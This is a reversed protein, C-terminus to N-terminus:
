RKLNAGTRADDVRAAKIRRIALFIVGAAVLLLLLPWHRQILGTVLTLAGDAETVRGSAGSLEQLATGAATVLGGGMLAKEVTDAQKITRSGDERLDTITVDRPPPATATMLGDWTVPGVVGDSGIQAYAQFAVVAEETIRGFVGDKKGPFFGLNALLMQLDLVFAGKDGQRLTPRNLLTAPRTPMYSKVRERLYDGVPLAGRLEPKFPLRTLDWKGRQKVGLTPQVEAHTLCTERTIPIGQGAHFDALMRCHAEFQRENIPASGADFPNEIAGLMGAMAFGGSGTNLNLTHAAYDDDATVINDAIEENGEVIQADFETIRHYHKKDLPSARGGGGTWHTISRKIGSMPPEVTLAVLGQGSAGGKDLNHYRLQLLGWKLLM